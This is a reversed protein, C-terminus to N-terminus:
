KTPSFEVKQKKNDNPQKKSTFRSAHAPLVSQSKMKTNEKEGKQFYELVLKNTKLEMCKAFKYIDSEDLNYLMCNDWILQLDSFVDSLFKYSFNKIKKRVTSIDMPRKIIEPYDLLGLGLYFYNKPLKYAKSRYDVPVLFPESHDDSELDDLLKRLILVDEKKIIRKFEPNCSHSNKKSPINTSSTMKLKNKRPM